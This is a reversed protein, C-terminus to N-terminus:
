QPTAAVQYVCLRRCTPCKKMKRLVMKQNTVHEKLLRNHGVTVIFEAIPKRQGLQDAIAWTAPSLAALHNHRGGSALM